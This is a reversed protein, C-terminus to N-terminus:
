QNISGFIIGIDADQSAGNETVRLLVNEDYGDNVIIKRENRVFGKVAYYHYRQGIKRMVIVPRGKRAHGAIEGYGVRQVDTHVYQNAYNVLTILKTGKEEESYIKDIGSYSVGLYNLVSSLAAIACKDPEQKQFKLPLLFAHSM